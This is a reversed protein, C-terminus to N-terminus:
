FSSPYYSALPEFGVLGLSVDGENPRFGIPESVSRPANYRILALISVRNLYFRLSMLHSTDCSLRPCVAAFDCAYTVFSTAQSLLCFKQGSTLPLTENSYFWRIAQFNMVKGRQKLPSSIFSASLNGVSSMVQHQDSQTVSQGRCGFYM